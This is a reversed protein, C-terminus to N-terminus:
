SDARRDATAAARPKRSRRSSSSSARGGGRVSRRARPLRRDARRRRVAAAGRRSRDGARRPRAGPRRSRRDARRPDSPVAGPGEARDAAQGPRGGRPVGRSRAPRGRAAGRALAAIVERAGPEHSCARSTRRARRAAAADFEFLFRLRDPIEELRDVSGIAMPLLSSSSSWRRTRDAGCTAARSSTARAVGGGAAGAGGGEHLPPEDLRAEGPRLRRRQARRGRDRLPAGARRDAAAGPRRGAVLRAARPLEDAGRAPLRARPVRRGVDRWAAEVAAHPGPGHVLSLHAFAPPTFGLAQYLLVQRPTNSIHDEGRIVHTIEMLADDVVVAFNYAPRGDSRVLVSDGIVESSFTVEGRVLDQFSVEVHEPVKFRIVPREGADMRARAEDPPLNAARAASVEASARRGSRGPSRTELKTPSCFCYYAHGGAILENAYSAYLHLRESQRYPGHAGGVDPGEDWHLGLWRLDELIGAESERTSRETDTDEIRLM